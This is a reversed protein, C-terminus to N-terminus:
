AAARYRAQGSEAAQRRQWFNEMPEGDSLYDARLQLMEEAGAERWFKETGKVRDNFQNVASEVYSSVIPLGERRYEAYRMRDKHNQLYGLARSVIRAPSTEKADDAPTGLDAQRTALEAIVKEVEGAWTWGIWRQYVEWGEAFPRGAVASHFVYTLAHIFDLIPVFSSFHNRWLTWNTEAGDGLFARRTAGFFGLSWALAAVMPGFNAWPRRTAVLQKTLVEPPQWEVPEEDKSGPPPKDPKDGEKSASRKGMQKALEPIWYPNVFSQPITSCPDAAQRESTMTMLLGIKDERWHLPKKAAVTPEPVAVDDQIEEEPVSAAAAPQGQSVREFIQLRGGDVGVVAVAPAQLGEPVGKRETLPKAQYTCVEADRETVREDGITKCLRRVQKDGVDVEAL